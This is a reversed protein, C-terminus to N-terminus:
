DGRMQGNINNRFQSSSHFIPSFIPLLHKARYGRSFLYGQAYMDNIFELAIRVKNGGFSFPLLDERKVFILNNDDPIPVTLTVCEPLEIHM